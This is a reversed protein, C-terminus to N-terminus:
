RLGLEPVKVGLAGAAVFLFTCPWCPNAVDFHEHDFRCTESQVGDSTCCARCIRYWQGAGTGQWVPTHLDLEALALKRLHEADAAAIAARVKDALDVASTDGPHPVRRRSNRDEWHGPAGGAMGLMRWGGCPCHELPVNGDVVRTREGDCSHRRPPPPVDWTPTEAPASPRAPKNLIQRMRADFRDAADPGGYGRGDDASGNVQNTM